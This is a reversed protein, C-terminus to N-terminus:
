VDPVVAAFGLTARALGDQDTVHDIEVEDSSLTALSMISIQRVSSPAIASGSLASSLTLAEQGGSESAATVRRYHRTGDILEICLDRRNPKGTAFQAYGAWEVVLATSGGAISAVPQLDDAWSPLWIPTCRGQLTYLLSRLWTHETRDFAVWQHQQRPLSVNPLDHVVPLATGYDVAAPQRGGTHTPSESEDPRIDLVPHGLYTVPSALPPWDCSEALDFSLSCRLTQANYLRQETDVAARAQRLPYLRSGAPWTELTPVALVLHDASVAEIKVMEWTNVSTYLLARGGAHFDYGTTACPIAESAAPLVASLLQVDPWIPLMWVGSYGALLMRATRFRQGDDFVEFTFGRRPGIRLSRHQTVATASARLVDTSWTLREQIGNSWDPPIPWIRAGDPIFAM